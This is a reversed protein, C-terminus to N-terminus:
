STSSCQLTLKSAKELTELIERNKREEELLSEKLEEIRKEADRSAVYGKKRSSALNKVANAIQNEKVSINVALRFALRRLAAVSAKAEAGAIKQAQLESRLTNRQHKVLSLHAMNTLPAFSENKPLPTSAHSEDLEPTPPPPSTHYSRDLMFSDTISREMKPTQPLPRELKVISPPLINEMHAYAHHKSEPSPTGSPM